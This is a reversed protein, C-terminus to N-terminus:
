DEGQLLSDAASSNGGAQKWLIFFAPARLLIDPLIRLSKLM